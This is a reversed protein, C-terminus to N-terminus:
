AYHLLRLEMFLPAQNRLNSSTVPTVLVSLKRQAIVVLRYYFYNYLVAFPSTVIHYFFTNQLKIIRPSSLKVVTRIYNQPHLSHISSLSIAKQHCSAVALRHSGSIIM